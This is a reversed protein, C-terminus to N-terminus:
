ELGTNGGDNNNNNNNDDKTVLDGNEGDLPLNFSNPVFDEASPILTNIATSDSTSSHSINECATSNTLIDGGETANFDTVTDIGVGCNFTDKGPGGTLTDNGRNGILIDNDDDGFIVDKGTGGRIRDNGKDGHITDDGEGGRIQDGAELGSIVDDGGYGYIYDKDATGTLTDPGPTGTVNLAWVTTLSPVPLIQGIPSITGSLLIATTTTTGIIILALMLVEKSMNVGKIINCCNIGILPLLSTM